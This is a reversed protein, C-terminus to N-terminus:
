ASGRRTLVEVGTDTVRVDDEWRVGFRGPLYVGPEVTVVDGPALLTTSGAVLYPPEHIELGIGHGLRHTFHDGHGAERIVARAAEDVHGAEVGPAIRALGAAQAKRVLAHIESYEVPWADVPPLGEDWWFSRTIDATFGDLWGGWDILVPTGPALAASGPEAHPEAGNPGFQVLSWAEAGHGRFAEDIRAATEAETDGARLQGVVDDYVSWACAIAQRLTEIEREDKARRLGEFLDAGDVIEAAAAASLSVGDHYATSPELAWTEGPRALRSAVAAVPDSTEKWGEVVVGPLRTAHHAAEFAPCVLWPDGNRPVGFCTLRETRWLSLGTLYTFNASPTALVGDWGRDALAKRVRALREIM